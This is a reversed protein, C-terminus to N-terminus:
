QAGQTASLRVPPIITGTNYRKMAAAGVIASGGPRPVRGDDPGQQAALNRAQVQGLDADPRVCGAVGLAVVLILRNM